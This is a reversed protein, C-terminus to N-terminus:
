FTLGLPAPLPLPPGLKKMLVELHLEMVEIRLIHEKHMMDAVRYSDVNGQVGKDASTTACQVGQDVHNATEHNVQAVSAGDTVERNVQAVTSSRATGHIVEAYPAPNAADRNVGADPEANATEHYVGADPLQNASGHSTNGDAVDWRPSDDVRQEDDVCSLRRRAIPSSYLRRKMALLALSLRATPSENGLRERRTTSLPEGAAGSRADHEFAEQRVFTDSVNYVEFPLLEPLLAVDSDSVSSIRRVKVSDSSAARESPLRQDEPRAPSRARKAARGTDKSKRRASRSPRLTFVSDDDDEISEDYEESSTTQSETARVKGLAGSSKHRASCPAFPCILKDLRETVENADTGQAIVHWFFSEMNKPSVRRGLRSHVASAMNRWMNWHGCDWRDAPASKMIPAMLHVKTCAFKKYLARLFARDEYPWFTFFYLEGTSTRTPQKEAPRSQM